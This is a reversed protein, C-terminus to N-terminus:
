RQFRRRERLFRLFMTTCLLFLLLRSWHFGRLLAIGLVAALLGWCITKLTWHATPSLQM